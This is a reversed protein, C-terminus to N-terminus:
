NEKNRCMDLIWPIVEQQLTTDDMIEFVEGGAKRIRPVLSEIKAMENRALDLREVIRLQAEVREEETLDEFRERIKIRSELLGIRDESVTLLVPVFSIGLDLLKRVSDITIGITAHKSAHMDLDSNKWGYKNNHYDLTFFFDSSALTDFEEVSVSFIDKSGVESERLDRTTYKPVPYFGYDNKLIQELYSKGVGSTGSIAFNSM